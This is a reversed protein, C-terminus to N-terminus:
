PALAPSRQRQSIMEHSWVSVSCLSLIFVFAGFWTKVGEDLSLTILDLCLTFRVVQEPCEVLMGNYAVAM